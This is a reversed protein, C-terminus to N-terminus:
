GAGGSEVEERWVQDARFVPCSEVHVDFAIIADTCPAAGGLTVRVNVRRTRYETEIASRSEAFIEAAEKPRSAEIVEAEDETSEDPEWVKYESM